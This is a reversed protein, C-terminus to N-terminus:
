LQHSVDGAMPTGVQHYEIHSGTSDVVIESRRIPM